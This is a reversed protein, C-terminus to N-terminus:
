IERGPAAALRGAELRYIAGVRALLAPDHSVILVTTRAESAMGFLIDAVRAGNEPDLSATPEDALLLAPRRILARAVAVRQQEGRSLAGARATVAAVGVREALSRARERMAASARWRDFRAPLLINDLVGLESFLQFDQFVLGVADRRWRDRRQEPWAAIDSGGWRVGGRDPRVLGAVAHMLTTKGAGSPGTIAATAGPELVLHIDSLIAGAVCGAEIRDVGLGEVSLRSPTAAGEHVDSSRM